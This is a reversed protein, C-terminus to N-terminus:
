PAFAENAQKVPKSKNPERVNVHLLPNHFALTGDHLPIRYM